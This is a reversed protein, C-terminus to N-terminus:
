GHHVQRGYARLCHAAAHTVGNTAVEGKAAAIGAQYERDSMSTARRGISSMRGCRPSMSSSSPTCDYEAPSIATDEVGFGPLQYASVGPMGLQIPMSSM